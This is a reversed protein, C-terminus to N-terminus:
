TTTQAAQLIGKDSLAGVRYDIGAVEIPEDIGSNEIRVGFYVGRQREASHAVTTGSKQVTDSIQNRSNTRALVLPSTETYEEELDVSYSLSTSELRQVNRYHVTIRDILKRIGSNGFDNPRTDLRFTIAENDDRYDTALGTNRISFVRGKTSAFYANSGLNAWGIAPHNDYRSWAGARGEDEGTHNYVYAESPEIYTSEDDVIPVSLKYVRGVGFHHGHCLSLLDLDARETWNREMFRGIYQISQDRRLCYIGSENAFMIGKKTVAISYPATCGLGETEIRQVPNQGAVKQNIDVLYISNTKFVVLIASQQAAGFAAEGFFPIIGTIEQGDASNIDIASDSENDLTSTPNDFIEPYNEYSVIIRSPFVMASASTQSTSTKRISNVFLDYGGFTPVLEMTSADAREQRVVLRGAPSLDNGGRASMWPVFADMGTVATDVQRMSSNIAMAMRRMADFIDFSDGNVMGLNGDTGLLVPVDTPDTAHVYKNPYTTAAAAGVLRCTVTTADSSKVMYWGSYDLQRGTIAVTSYTLYIWDGAVAGTNTSSDFTFEDTGIVYNSATGSFTSKWEYKVRDVMNTSTGTDTNDRRFLLTDGAFASNTISADAVIQIDFQPYDKINGLVARNGISTIYKSRLPGTWATGLESGKLATNVADLETLDSDAFSDRYQLYGQTSDFDMPLTTVLYFPATQNMKTRYIRVELRDYDLVDWAPLGIIKHQIAANGTLEVVHDQHGAVASAVLNDNADIASLVYYYRYSGIESITPTVSSVGSDIARDVLLYYDTGNNSYGSVTYTQTSGQIRVPTGVPITNVATAPITLTGTASIKASATLSRLNTVITAGSTEQTLFLGPQWQPIGARYINSGDFKYVEDDYNSLYLNDQVMTSRLFSQDSYTGVDFHRIYTSPTLNFSDDPAEVPIWREECRFYNSDDLTDSWTLEEDIQCTEGALVAGSVTATEDTLYTFETLSLITAVEVVGTHVGAQQLLVKSGVSLYSTDGSLLVCTASGDAVTIDVSRNSDSNVYKVRLLRRVEPKDNAVDRGSYSLMDGRVLNDSKSVPSPYGSRLPIVSSTREATFFVGAPVEIIDIVGDTVTTTSASGKITCVFSDGLSDSILQDGPIYTSNATWTIQDTFVGAEGGTNLDDWDAANDSNEVWVYVKNTSDTVQRIRFTGNHLGYSMGQVTLYDEISSTTSIVSSLTTPTGASDLILKSPLEITYKTWGNSGDYQVESITAWHTGSNDATIYGRSRAPTEGSNWFLPALTGASATRAVLQPYLLPLLYSTAAESYDQAAFLNGGLGAIVRQEGSRRYSDIHTVWGERTSKEPYIEEQELGWITIQPRDDTGDVTVTSDSVCLQNSRIEGYEYYVIFNKASSTSNVFTLTLTGAVDDYEVTDALVIERIGGPTQELYINYLVWPSELGTLVVTGTSSAGVTGSTINATPASSLLIDYDVASGTGNVVTITINGNAAVEVSEPVVTTRSTGTDQQMYVLFNLGSLNHTAAPISITQTGTSIGAATYVYSSGTVTSKDAYFVYVDRTIATTYGISIDFTSENISISDPAVQQYSGNITDTAEVVSIFLNTTSMGHESAKITLTGTGAVLTKRIPATFAPYYKAVSGSTSFPGQGSTFESSRGYIVLPSSRVSALSLSSGTGISSDLTFWVQNDTNKYEMQTVRIPINGAYSQYGARKRPRKEVIDGNLLDRVFSADIQNEASRADIGGSFDKEPSTVYDIAM